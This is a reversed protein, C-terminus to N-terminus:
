YKKIAINVKLTGFQSLMDASLTAQNLMHLEVAGGAIVSPTTINLVVNNKSFRLITNGSIINIIEGLGDYLDYRDQAPNVSPDLFGIMRHATDGKMSYVIMGTHQDGVVGTLIAVEGEDLRNRWFYVRGRTVECQFIDTLTAEVSNFLDHVFPVDLKEKLM